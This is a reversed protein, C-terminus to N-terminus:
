FPYEDAVAVPKNEYYYGTNESHTMWELNTLANNKKNSDKHNVVRKEEPNELFAEAVLRHVFFKKKKPIAYLWVVKYGRYHDCLSMIIDKKLKLSRVRGFNSILYGEVGKVQRWEEAM